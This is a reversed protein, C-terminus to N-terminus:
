YYNDYTKCSDCDIDMCGIEREINGYYMRRFNSNWPYMQMIIAYHKCKPWLLFDSM